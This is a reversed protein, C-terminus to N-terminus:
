LLLRVPAELLEAVRALLRAGELMPMEGSLILTSRHEGRQTDYLVRGLTVAPVHVDLLVEDVDLGSLDVAVLGLEDEEPGPGSLEEVLSAFPREGAGDVRRFRVGGDLEALAVQGQLSGGEAVAKAVARVLFPAAALPEGHELELGVALQAGALASLDVHRRVVNGIRVLPLDALVAAVTTDPQGDLERLDALSDQEDLAAAQELDEVDDTGTALEEAPYTDAVTDVAAPVESLFAPEMDEDELEGVDAPPEVSGEYGATVPEDVQDAEADSAWLDPLEGAVEGGESTDDVPGVGLDSLDHGDWGSLDAEKEYQESPTTFDHDYSEISAALEEAPQEVEQPQEQHEALDAVDSAGVTDDEVGDDAVLLADDPDATDAELDLAPEDAADALADHAESGWEPASGADAVVPDAHDVYGDGYQDDDDEDDDDDDFLFIDDSIEVEGTTTTPEPDAFVAAEPEHEAGNGYAGEEHSEDATFAYAGDDQSTLESAADGLDVDGSDLHEVASPVDALLGEAGEEAMDVLADAHAGQGSGGPQFYSPADQDPWTEMGEPLPEPTPDLAEEGAMVRALYDLVDREVIRGDPGSGSLARWDVNNQEALRRALTAIDPESM